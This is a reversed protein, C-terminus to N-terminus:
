VRFSGFSKMFIASSKYELRMNEPENILDKLEEETWERFDKKM